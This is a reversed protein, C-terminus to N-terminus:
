KGGQKKKYYTGILHYVSLILIILTVMGVIVELLLNDFLCVVYVTTSLIFSNALFIANAIKKINKDNVKIGYKLKLYSMEKGNPFNKLVNKRCLVFILYFLYVLGFMIVYFILEKM